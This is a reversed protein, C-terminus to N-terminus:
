RDVLASPVTSESERKKENVYNAVEQMSTWAETIKPYDPHDSPTHKKLESLLLIYRPIRQVPMILFSDLSQRNV